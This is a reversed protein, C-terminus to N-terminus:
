RIFWLGRENLIKFNFKPEKIYNPLVFDGDGKWIHYMANFRAKKAYFKYNDNTLGLKDYAAALKLWETQTFKVADKVSVGMILNLIENQWIRSFDIAFDGFTTNVATYVVNTNGIFSRTGKVIMQDAMDMATHCALSYVLSGKFVEYLKPYSFFSDVGMVWTRELGHGAYIILEPKVEKITDIVRSLPIFMGSILTMEINPTDKLMHVVQKILGDTNITVLDFRPIIFVIRLKSTQINMPQEISQIM